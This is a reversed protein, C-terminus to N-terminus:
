EIKKIEIQEIKDAIRQLSKSIRTLLVLIYVVIGVWLIFFLLPIFAFAGFYEPRMMTIVRKVKDYWMCSMRRVRQIDSKKKAEMVVEDGDYSINIAAINGLERQMREYETSNYYATEKSSMDEPKTVRSFKM